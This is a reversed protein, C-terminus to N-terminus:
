IGGHEYSEELRKLSLDKAKPMTGMVEQVQEIGYQMNGLVCVDNTSVEFAYPIRILLEIEANEKKASYFRKIGVIRREYPVRRLKEVLKMVPLSGKGGANEVAFIGCIGDNFTQFPLDRKIQM